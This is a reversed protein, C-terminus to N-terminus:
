LISQDPESAHNLHLSQLYKNVDKHPAYISNMSQIKNGFIEIFKSNFKMGTRDNDLWTKIVNFNQDFLYECTRSFSSTSHMIITDCEFSTKNQLALASLFDLMGEFVNIAQTAGTGKIISIDRKILASKFSHTDSASRIEWGNSQNIMGFAFYPKDEIRPKKLNKYQVTRLYKQVLHVPIFREKELYDLIRRSTLKMDKVFVLQKEAEELTTEDFSGHQSFSFSNQLSQYNSILPEGGGIQSLWSLADAVRASKGNTKLYLIAFDLSNGGEAMSFDFFANRTINVNCSPNEEAHFPSLYKLETGGREKKLPSHGLFSMIDTIKIRKAQHINM